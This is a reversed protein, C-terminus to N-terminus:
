YMMEEEEQGDPYHLIFTTAGLTIVAGHNLVVQEKKGLCVNNLFTGTLSPFVRLTYILKGAANKKVNIVCHKRGMSPDTNIIAIDVGDTDRNRRGIVNDGLQLGFEQKDGFFNANVSIYGNSFDQEVLQRESGSPAQVKKKGLKVNFQSGCQACVLAIPKGVPYKTEDFTTLNDCKPCFVKKM